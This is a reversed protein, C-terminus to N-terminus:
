APGQSRQPMLVLNTTQSLDALRVATMSQAEHVSYRAEAFLRELNTDDFGMLEQAQPAYELYIVPRSEVIIRSMGNLVQMEFGEVDIKIMTIRNLGLKAAYGDLTAVTVAEYAPVQDSMFAPVMTNWGINNDRSVAIQATGDVAGLALNEVQLAYAPNLEAIRRIHECYRTVPEFAVVRGTPTVLRMAAATVYGINAGVDVFVAGPHLIERMLMMLPIEFSDYRALEYIGQTHLQDPFQIGEVNRMRERGLLRDIRRAIRERYLTLRNM